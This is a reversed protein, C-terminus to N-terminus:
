QDEDLPVVVSNLIKHIIKPADTGSIHSQPNAIIRHCLIPLALEKVMQPTVFEENNFLAYAQCARMLALSARPSAGLNIDKSERTARVIAVLYAKVSDSIHMDCIKQQLAHIEEATIVPKIDQLPHHQIQANLIAIEQQESPYGLQICMFFRDLQAEPLPFTGHQEVPNQTAIVFFLEPLAHTEGDITVQKEEMCELLSSQTRPTARNIEDGLIINAFIPGERFEFDLNKQNFISVGTVDNPLLDPTFQIRNFKASISKAITKALVTKGVGPVDELLLHGKCLLTILALRVAKQKGVIVKNVNQELLQLKQLVSSHENEEM